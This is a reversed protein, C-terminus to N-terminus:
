IYKKQINFTIFLFILCMKLFDFLNFNIINNKWACGVLLSYATTLRQILPVQDCQVVNRVLVRCESLEHSICKRRMDISYESSLPSENFQCDDLSNCPWSHARLFGYNRRSDSGSRCRSTLHLTRLILRKMKGM